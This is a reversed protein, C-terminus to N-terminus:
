SFDFSTSQNPIWNELFILPFFHEIFLLSSRWYDIITACFLNLGTPFGHFYMIDIGNTLENYARRQLWPGAQLTNTVQAVSLVPFWVVFCLWNTFCPGFLLPYFSHDVLHFQYVISVWHLTISISLLVYNGITFYAFPYYLLHPYIVAFPILSPFSLAIEICTMIEEKTELCRRTQM